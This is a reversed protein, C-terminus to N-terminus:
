PAPAAVVTEQAAIAQWRGARWLFIDTFRVRGVVKGDPAIQTNLGRVIGTAGEVRATMESLQLRSSPRQPLRALMDTRRVIVGQWNNDAFDPALHCALAAGDRAELAAVWRDEAQRLGAPTRPETPCAAALALLLLPM